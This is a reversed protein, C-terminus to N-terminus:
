LVVTIKKRKVHMVVILVCFISWTTSFLAAMRPPERNAYCVKMLMDNPPNPYGCFTKVYYNHGMTHTSM